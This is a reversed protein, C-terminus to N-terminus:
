ARIANAREDFRPSAGAADRLSAVTEQSAQFALDRLRAATPAPMRVLVVTGIGEQSRIRLTGGHLETMSRAIALGLGSGKYSRTLNTEVQQFPLGLKSLAAKPIGIGTDTIFINVAEGAPKAQVIVRGNSPTFKVANQVLNVLIQQLAREDALVTLNPRVCVDLSLSKAHAVETVLGMAGEVAEAVSVERVALTVRQAEIRSMNLIDDIVSLLYDGSSRIDRCYDAYRPSGLKGYVESAMLEAFGIIANLPTRLEHSMNALFESKAQNATEAQAKQDLYREALDALQQTQLELTRRSRKLDRVTAMLERESTVLQEQNLKLNTIDTGVSVYGGDKTRRESIQLWRGDTLEAEFTRATACASEIDRLERRVPPLAGRGMIEHYRRGPTADEPSLAHLDRFKSNCLVLKNSTDWLVFAESIAEVADRLRMDATANSEALQRQETVDVAIGVLHRGGDASDPVIEARTRLWVWAGNAGRVRFEHDVTSQSAALHRALSYLDGDDPHVLANIDGFSLFERERTYGLLAYMSDSWYIRGRPIDWDWLGCRGRGLATDLRKKVQECIRDSAHARRTQLGYAFGVGIIVIAASTLLTAQTKARSSWAATVHSLPQIVAVRGARLTRVAAIAPEGNALILTVAGAREGLISLPQSEGLYATLTGLTETGAPHAAVIQDDPAVVLIKRGAHLLSAPLLARLRSGIETETSNGADALGAATLHAFAEVDSVASRVAEDRQGQIHMMAVAAMSILFTALVAPVAYRLWTEMRVFRAHVSTAPRHIGLITDARASAALSASEAEPM